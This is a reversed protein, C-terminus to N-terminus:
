DTLENSRKEKWSRQLVPLQFNPLFGYRTQKKFNCTAEIFVKKAISTDGTQPTRTVLGVVHHMEAKIM